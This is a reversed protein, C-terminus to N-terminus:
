VVPVWVRVSIRVSVRLLFGSSFGPVSVSARFQFGSCFGSSFGPVSVWFLFGSCFGPVSVRFLFGSCFGPVSVRCCCGCAAPAVASWRGPPPTSGRVVRRGGETDCSMMAAKVNAIGFARAGGGTQQHERGDTAIAAAAARRRSPVSRSSSGERAGSCADSTRRWARGKVRFGLGWVRM